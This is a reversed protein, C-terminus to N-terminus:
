APRAFMARASEDLPASTHQHLVRWGDPGPRLAWTLRNDMARLHAGDAGIAAFRVFAEALALGPTATLRPAEFSVRVREGPELGGFWGEVDARLAALGDLAWTGWMEFARFEPAYIALFADVDKAWVAAAYSDFLAQLETDTMM